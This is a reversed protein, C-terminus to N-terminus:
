VLMCITWNVNEIEIGLQKLKLTECRPFCDLFIEMTYYIEILLVEILTLKNTLELWFIFNWLIFKFISGPISDHNVYIELLM